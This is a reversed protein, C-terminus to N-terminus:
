FTQRNQWIKRVTSDNKDLTGKSTVVALIGGPRLLDMSKRIFYDHVKLKMKKYRPDYLRFDGFPVNGVIVDFSNDEFETKEFGKIQISASPHLKQAIRGSIADIEVGYLQSKAYKGSSWSFTELGWLRNWFKERRSDLSSWPKIFVGCSKRRRIFLVTSM